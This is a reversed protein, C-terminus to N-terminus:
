SGNGAKLRNDGDIRAVVLLDLGDAAITSLFSAGEEAYYTDIIAIRSGDPSWSAHTGEAVARLDSGDANVVYVTPDHEYRGEIRPPVIHGSSFLIKTGDPSWSLGPDHAIYEPYEPEHEVIEKLGTGDPNIVYVHLRLRNDDTRSSVTFAVTQGDPSWQPVGFHYDGQSGVNAFLRKLDTGDAGVLYLSKRRLSNGYEDRERLNESVVFALMKGDPSWRPGAEHTRQLGDEAERWEPAASDPTIRELDSGDPAVTYIGKFVPYGLRHKAFAIRSGDPSWVPSTDLDWNATLRLRDSGDLGSIEIEFNRTLGATPDHPHRSTTYVIRAGNPSLDPSFDRGRRESVLRVNSGDSAAVYIASGEHNERFFVISSGDDSWQPTFQPDM